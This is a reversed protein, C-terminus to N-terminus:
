FTCLSPLIHVNQRNNAMDPAISKAPIPAFIFFFPAKKAFVTNM